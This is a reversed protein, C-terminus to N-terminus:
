RKAPSEWRVVIKQALERDVTFQSYGMQFVYSPFRRILCVPVGPLVGIAMLKQVERQDRTSLYAIVGRDGVQANALPRVEAIVDTKAKECCEGPPIPRGHPCTAPHGLLICVKDDLGPRLIHEFQCADQDLQDDGVALVDRLLCEALRHRRVVAKAASLGSETLKFAVSAAAPGERSEIYELERAQVIAEPTVAANGESDGVVRDGGEVQTVYLVELLEEVRPDIM